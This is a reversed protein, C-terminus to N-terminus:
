ERTRRPRAAHASTVIGNYAVFGERGTWRPGRAAPFRAQNGRVRWLHGAEILAVLQLLAIGRERQLRADERPGIRRRKRRCQNRDVAPEPSM